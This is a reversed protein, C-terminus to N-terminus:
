KKSKPDPQIADKMEVHDEVELTHITAEVEVGIEAAILKAEDSDAVIFLGQVDKGVLVNKGSRHVILQGGVSEGGLKKLADEFKM